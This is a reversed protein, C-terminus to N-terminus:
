DGDEESFFSYFLTTKNFIAILRHALFRKEALERREGKEGKSV